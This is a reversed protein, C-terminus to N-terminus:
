MSIGEKVTGRARKWISPMCLMLMPFIELRGFLMNIIFVIKSVVSFMSFNGTPGVLDLGPGINNLCAIVSTVTTEFSYNELSIVLISVAAIVAYASLFAYVGKVVSTEVPEKDLRIVKVTNPSLLKDTEKRLSKIMILIRSCKIGGGTSGASAGMFMLMVLLIRSLQPWVNFDTTAFGTTTMISSVQFAAHHLAEFIRGDYMGVTNWTIIGISVLMTGIYFILEENFFAKKFERILLLYFINFNIGFLAMFVTVVVQCYTSYGALSDNKIGFGGTGATGFATVFADFLEMGGFLLLVIQLLTLGIYISYLIKATESLKPVLKGVKPGTSEARLIFVADGSGGSVPTIALLFVLVGMGGLWHTFSRWYLLGMPLTEVETLITAGTTTFGSVTEFLSDIYHPIAGSIYFPFAGFVSVAIWALGVIAFSERAYLKKRIPKVASMIISVTMIIILTIVYGKISERENKFVSILLGPIMFIAELKLIQGLLKCIMKYNM